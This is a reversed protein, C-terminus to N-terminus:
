IVSFCRNHIRNNRLNREVYETQAVTARIVGPRSVLNTYIIPHATRSRFKPKSTATNLVTVSASKGTLWVMNWLLILVMCGSSGTGCRFPAVSTTPMKTGAAGVFRYWGYLGNDCLEEYLPTHYSSKRRFDSLNKYEYCPDVAFDFPVRITM